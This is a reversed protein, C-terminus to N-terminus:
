IADVEAPEISQMKLPVADDLQLTAKAFPVWTLLPYALKFIVVPHEAISPCGVYMDREIYKAGPSSV